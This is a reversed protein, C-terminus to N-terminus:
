ILFYLLFLFRTEPLLAVLVSIFSLIQQSDKCESFSRGKEDGQMFVPHSFSRSLPLYMEYDRMFVTSFMNRKTYDLVTSKASLLSFSNNNEEKHCFGNWVNIKLNHFCGHLPHVLSNELHTGAQVTLQWVCVIILQPMYQEWGQIRLFCHLFFNWLKERGM